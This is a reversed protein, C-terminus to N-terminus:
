SPAMYLMHSMHKPGSEAKCVSGREGVHTEVFVVATAM